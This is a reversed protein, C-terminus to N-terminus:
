LRFGRNMGEKNIEYFIRHNHAALHKRAIQKGLNEHKNNLMELMETYPIVHTDAEILIKLKASTACAEIEKRKEKSEIFIGIDIDSKEKQQNIAYSGFIVISYFPTDDIEKKLWYLAQKTMKNMKKDNCLAIYYFTRDNNLNLTIIGSRGIKREIIVEEKKLSNLVAALMNNSTIKSENKISNRTHEAFPKQAFVEFIKLQKETLM